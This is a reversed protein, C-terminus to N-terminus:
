GKKRKRAGGPVLIPSTKFNIPLRGGARYRWGSHRISGNPQGPEKKYVVELIGWVYQDEARPELERYDLALRLAAAETGIGRLGALIVLKNPLGSIPGPHNVVVVVACDRGDRIRKALFEHRDAVYDAVVTSNQDRLWIGCPETPAAIRGFTSAPPKMSSHWVFQFPPLTVQAGSAFPDSKFVEALAYEAAPNIRPSGV